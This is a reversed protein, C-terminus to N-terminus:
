SQDGTIALDSIPWRPTARRLSCELTTVKRQLRAIEQRQCSILKDQELIADRQLDGERKMKDMALSAELLRELDSKVHALKM